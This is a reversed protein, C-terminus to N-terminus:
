LPPGCPARVVTFLYELPYRETQVRTYALGVNAGHEPRGPVFKAGRIAVPYGRPERHAWDLESRVGLAGTSSSRISIGLRRPKGLVARARSMITEDVHKEEFTSARGGVMETPSTVTLDTPASM